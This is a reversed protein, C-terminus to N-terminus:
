RSRAVTHTLLWAPQAMAQPNQAVPWAPKVRWRVTPSITSCTTRADRRARSTPRRTLLMTNMPIPSGIAFRAATQGLTSRNWPSRPSDARWMVIEVTPSIGPM